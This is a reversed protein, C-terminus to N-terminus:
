KRHTAAQGPKQRFLPRRILLDPNHPKQPAIPSFFPVGFSEVCCLPVFVVLLACSLGFFGGLAGAITFVFQLIQVASGLQLSPIGYGGLACLAVIIVPVPSVLKASIAADGLILAGFIGLVGGVLRPIRTSAQDVLLFAFQMMLIEALVPFPVEARADVIAMLLEPPLLEQHHMCLALYFGPLFLAFILGIYRIIRTFTGYQWRNFTDDPTNFLHFFTIPVAIVFPAGDCILLVQGEQLFSAARDPRETLLMQPVIARPSDEILQSLFGAGPLLDMDIQELRDFVQSLVKPDAAGSIHMVCVTTQIERGIRVMKSILKPTRVLRRILTINTRLNETFGEQSGLIVNETAPQAIHRKEFGRVDLLIGGSFGQVLLLAQGELIADAAESFDGAEKAATVAVTRELIDKLSKLHQARPILNCRLVLEGLLKEDCMGELYCLAAPTQGIMLRRLKIDANDPAGFVSLIRRLNKELDRHFTDM